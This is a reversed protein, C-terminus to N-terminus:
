QGAANQPSRVTQEAKRSNREKNEKLKTDKIYRAVRPAAQIYLNHIILALSDGEHTTEKSYFRSTAISLFYCQWEVYIENFLVASVKGLM